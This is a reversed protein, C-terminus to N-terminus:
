NCTPAVQGDSGTYVYTDSIYGEGIYNWLDSTGYKGTVTEGHKQCSITVTQGDAVSGVIGYNTGPGSRINLSVGSETHVTGTVGENSCSNKSTYNKAGYYTIQSGNFKIKQASGNYRQEFHLHPGTVNGTGGVTGIKQGQSVSQGSSVSFSNLHAYLTSWGNGHDIVIYKGYSSNGLNRVTVVQGSASAVVKDGLDNSRNFDVSNQPNHNTRTQGEWTQGCPFPMQFSPGVASAQSSNFFGTGLLLIAVLIVKFGFSKM